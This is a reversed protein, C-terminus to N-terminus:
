YHGDYSLCISFLLFFTKKKAFIRWTRCWIRWTTGYKAIELLEGIEDETVGGIKFKVRYVTNYIISFM